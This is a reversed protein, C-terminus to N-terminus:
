EAHGRHIRTRIKLFILHRTDMDHMDIDHTQGYGHKKPWFKLLFNSERIHEIKQKPFFFELTLCSIRGLTTELWQRTINSNVLSFLEWEKLSQFSTPVCDSFLNSSHHVGCELEMIFGFRDCELYCLFSEIERSIQKEHRGKHNQDRPVEIKNPIQIIPM